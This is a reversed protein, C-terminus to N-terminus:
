FCDYFHLCNIGTKQFKAQSQVTVYKSQIFGNYSCFFTQIATKTTDFIRKTKRMFTLFDSVM